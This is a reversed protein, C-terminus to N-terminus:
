LNIEGSVLNTDIGKLIVARLAKFYANGASCLTEFEQPNANANVRNMAEDHLANLDAYLTAFEATENSVGILAARKKITQIDM